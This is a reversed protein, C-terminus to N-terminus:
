SMEKKWSRYLLFVGVLFMPLSLLQGMTADAYLFGLQPDPERFFEAVFRFVSYLALFVGSLFGPIRGLKTRKSLAFLIVFLLLGELLAEYIQSPHRALPGGHPFIVGWTVDTHRGFLEGNIFNAIRGLFLGIPAVCSLIDTFSLFSLKRMRTFLWTAVIVGVIGGHFAMGGQWVQLAELPNQLYYASNYFVVYGIRGGLITGIVAWVLFDDYDQASAGTNFRVTLVKCRWIGLVFGLLYAVAYWHIDIPGLSLMVPDISPFPIMFYECLCFPARTIDHKENM